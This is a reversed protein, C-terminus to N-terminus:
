LSIIEKETVVFDLRMDHPESPLADVEQCAFAIGVARIEPRTKKLHALTADYYGGGYGLRFGRRDFAVLPIWLMSPQLEQSGEPEFSGQAGKRMAMKPRWALFRMIREPPTISPLCVLYKKDHCAILARSIDVEGRMAKYGAVISQQALPISLLKECLYGCAEAREEMPMAMRREIMQKRIDAKSETM